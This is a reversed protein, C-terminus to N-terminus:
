IYRKTPNKCKILTYFSIPQDKNNQLEETIYHVVLFYKYHKNNVLILYQKTRIYQMGFLNNHYFSHQPKNEGTNQDQKYVFIEIGGGGM